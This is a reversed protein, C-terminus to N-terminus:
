IKGATKRWEDYVARLERPLARTFGANLPFQPMARHVADLLALAQKRDKDRKLPNRKAQGRGNVEKRRLDYPLAQFRREAEIWVAYRQELNVLARAQEDTFPEFSM